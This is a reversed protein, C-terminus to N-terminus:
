PLPLVGGNTFVGKFPSVMSKQTNLCILGINKNKSVGIGHFYCRGVEYLSQKDRTLCCKFLM